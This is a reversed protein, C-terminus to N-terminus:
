FKSLRKLLNKYKVIFDSFDEKINAYFTDSDIGYTSDLRLDERISKVLGKALEDGEATTVSISNKSKLVKTVKRFFQKDEVTREFRGDVFICGHTSLIRKLKKLTVPHEEKSLYKSHRSIWKALAFKEEDPFSDPLGALKHKALDLSVKFLDDEGCTIMVNHKELLVLLSVMATRKNGNHFAHNHTLSYMLAAAATELSPYKKFGAHSTSPHHVASELLHFNKVGNPSIPDESVNFERVLEYHISIIDEKSLHHIEDLHKGIVTFDVSPEIRTATKKKKPNRVLYTQRALNRVFAVDSVKVLSNENLVYGFRRTDWLKVILEDPDLKGIKSLSKITRRTAKM